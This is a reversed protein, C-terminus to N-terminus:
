SGMANMLGSLLKMESSGSLEHGLRAEVAQKVRSAMNPTSLQIVAGNPVSPDDLIACLQTMREIAAEQHQMWRDGGAYGENVAALSQGHLARAEDLRRHLKATREEDGKVCVMDQCHICDAHLQCPSMTFDHICYGFDTTHATPVLLRAFEDRPILVHKPLEALPGFM